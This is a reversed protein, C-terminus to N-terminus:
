LLMSGLFLIRGLSIREMFLWIQQKDAEIGIKQPKAASKKVWMNLVFASSRVRLRPDCASVSSESLPKHVHIGVLVAGNGIWVDVWFTALAMGGLAKQFGGLVWGSGVCLGHRKGLWGHLSSVQATLISHCWTAIFEFIM